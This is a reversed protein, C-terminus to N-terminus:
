IWARYLRSSIRAENPSPEPALIAAQCLPTEGYKDAANVKIGPAALLQGVVSRLGLRSALQLNTLRAPPSNYGLLAWFVLVWSIYLDAQVDSLEFALGILSQGETIMAAWNM